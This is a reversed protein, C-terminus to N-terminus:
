ARKIHEDMFLFRTLWDFQKNLIIIIDETFTVLIKAELDSLQKIKYLLHKCNDENNNTPRKIIWLIRKTEKDQIDIIAQELYGLPDIIKINQKSINNLIEMLLFVIRNNKGIIFGKKQVIKEILIHLVVKLLEKKASTSNSMQENIYSILMDFEDDNTPAVYIKGQGKLLWILNVNHKDAIELITDLKFPQQGYKHKTYQSDSIHFDKIFDKQTMEKDLRIDEVRDAIEQM